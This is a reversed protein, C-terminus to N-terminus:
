LIRMYYNVGRARPRAEDGGSSQITIGVGSNAAAGRSTPTENAAPNAVNFAAGTGTNGVVINLNHSHTPDTYTHVHSANQSNEQVAINGPRLYERSTNLLTVAGGNLPSGALSITATANINPASGTVSEGTLLGQNYGGAGTQGASLVIYKYALNRPPASWGSIGMNAPIPVGIPYLAWPDALIGNIAATLQAPTVRTALDNLTAQLGTITAVAQEGTHNSRDFADELIGQPDYVSQLMLGTTDVVAQFTDTFSMISYSDLDSNWALFFVKDSDVVSPVRVLGSVDVSVVLDATGETRAIKIGAGSSIKAPFRPLVRLRLTM